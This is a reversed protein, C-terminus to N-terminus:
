GPCCRSSLSTRPRPPPPPPPRASEGEPKKKSQGGGGRGGRARGGAPPPAPKIAKTGKKPVAARGIAPEPRRQQPLDFLAEAQPAGKRLEGPEFLTIVGYEGDFGPVGR